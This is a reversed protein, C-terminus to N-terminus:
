KLFYTLSSKEGHSTYRQETVVLGSKKLDGIARVVTMRSLKLDKAITNQSPWCFGQENCRDLLYIYVAVARHPLDYRYIARYDKRM